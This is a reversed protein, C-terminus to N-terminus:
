SFKIIVIGAVGPGAPYAGPDTMGARGGAGPTFYTNGFRYTSVPNLPNNGFHGAGGGGPGYEVSTGSISSVVGPGGDGPVTTTANGGNGGQGAGGGGLATTSGSAYQSGGTYPSSNGGQGTVLSGTSGRQALYGFATTSHPVAGSLPGGVNITYSTLALTPSVTRVNGGGGGPQGVTQAYSNNVLGAGGPGVLLVTPTGYYYEDFTPTFTGGPYNYTYTASPAAGNSGTLVPSVNVQSVGDRSQTYTFTGTSASGQNPVFVLSSFQSNVQTTNGTFSYTNGTLANPATNGFKGLSSTLTITYSQGYDGGDNIYPTNASFINNVTNSTYSRAIMNSIEPNTNGISLTSVVANAQLVNGTPLVKTQSYTITANGTYDIPPLWAVSNNINVKSNSLSLLVNANGTLVNNVYFKGINGSTQQFAVSYSTARTDLDTITNGFSRKTDEDYTGTGPWNYEDHATGIQINANATSIVTTANGISFNIANGVNSVLDSAPLFKLAGSTIQSNLSSPTGDIYISNGTVVGDTMSGYTPVTNAYLRFTVASAPDVAVNAVTVNALTDENYVVNGTITLVPQQIVNVTTTWARTNGSQDNVTTQYSYEPSVVSAGTLDTYKVNAFAENYQNVSRIGSVRWAAPAVQLIGINSYTGAYAMSVNGVNSFQVDILLDRVANSISSLTTQQTINASGYANVNATTNGLNTGFSIAYSAENNYTVNATVNLDEITNM